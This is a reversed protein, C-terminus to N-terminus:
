YLLSVPFNIETIAPSFIHRTTKYPFKKNKKITNFIDEVNADWEHTWSRLSIGSNRYDMLLCPVKKLKLLKAANYRHHGDMIASTSFELAIPITWYGKEIIENALRQARTPDHEETETIQDLNKLISKRM